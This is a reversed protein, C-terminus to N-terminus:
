SRKADSSPLFASLSVQPNHKISKTVIYTFYRDVGVQADLIQDLVAQYSEVGQCTIKLIYDIGGGLAHCEVVEELKSVYREFIGFDNQRHTRLMVTTFFSHLGAIVKMDIRAHYSQIIRKRELRRRRELCASASINVLESLAANTIRGDRQLAALIRVDLEDLRMHAALRPTAYRRESWDADAEAPDGDENSTM